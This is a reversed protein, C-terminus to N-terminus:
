RRPAAESGASLQELLQEVDRRKHAAAFGAIGRRRAHGMVPRGHSGAPRARGLRPHPSEREHLQRRGCGRGRNRRLGHATASASHTGGTRNSSSCCALSSLVRRHATLACPLSLLNCGLTEVLVSVRSRRADVRAAAFLNTSARATRQTVRVRQRERGRRMWARSSRRPVRAAATLARAFFSCCVRQWVLAGHNSRAAGAGRRCRGCLPACAVPACPFRAFAGALRGGSCLQARGVRARPAPARPRGAARHRCRPAEGPAGAEHKADAGSHSGGACVPRLVREDSWCLRRPLGCHACARVDETSMKMGAASSMSALTEPSINKMMESMMKMTAPDKMAEMAQAMDPAGVPGASASAGAARGARGNSAAAGLGPPMKSAMDMM